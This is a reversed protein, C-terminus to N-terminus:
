VVELGGGGMFLDRGGRELVDALDGAVRLGRLGVLLREVAGDLLDGGRRRPQEVRQLGVRRRLVALDLGLLALRARGVPVGARRLSSAPSSTGPRPSSTARRRARRRTTPAM